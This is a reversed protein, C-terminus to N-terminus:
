FRYRASFQIIRPDRTASIVGFNPSGINGINSSNISDFQAHNFANFFEGRIEFQQRETVNLRKFASLDWNAFGPGHFVYRGFSGLRGAGLAASNGTGVRRFYPNPAGSGSGGGTGDFYSNPKGAVASVNRPDYFTITGGLFDPHQATTDMGCLCRDAAEVINIPPGTQVAVVGSFGWGGALAARLGRQNKLFPLEYLFSGAYRHRFDFEANGRDFARNYINGNGQVRLGSGEDIAHSWTYAHTMSLGRGMRKTLSAQLSNYNSNADTLQDQISSFVAGGFAGSQPNGVNFRRRQNTNGTTADPTVLAYNFQRRNLLKTGLSGVYGIDALWSDGIQRQV